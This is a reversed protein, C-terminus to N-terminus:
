LGTGVFLPADCGAHSDLKMLSRDDIAVSPESAAYAEARLSTMRLRSM